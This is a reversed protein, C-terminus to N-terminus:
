WLVIVNCLDRVAGEGVLEDAHKAEVTRFEGDDSVVGEVPSSGPQDPHGKFAVVQRRQGLGELLDPIVELVDAEM